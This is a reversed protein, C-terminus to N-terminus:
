HRYRGSNAEPLSRHGTELDCRLILTGDQDTIRVSFAGHELMYRAQKLAANITTPYPEKSFPTPFGESASVYFTTALM